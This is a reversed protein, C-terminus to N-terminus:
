LQESIKGLRRERKSFEIIANHLEKKNFNPWLIKIFFLESYAIEWLLFNSIRMEGSTRILLDPEPLENTTLYKSFMDEDIKEIMDPHVLIDNSMQKVANLIDWRSGYSLAISLTLGSNNETTKKCKNIQEIVSNPLEAINGIFNMKVNNANLEDLEFILYWELLQMLGAVESDPRQWNERSFAYLTLYKVNLMSAEKVIEKVTRIGKEHGKIRPLNQENAWRGNGDMIIAIHTPIRYENKIADQALKDDEDIEYNWSM